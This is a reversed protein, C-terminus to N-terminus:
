MIGQLHSIDDVLKKIFKKGDYDFITLSANQPNYKFSEEKPADLLYPMLTRISGGHTVIVVTKNENNEIITHLSTILREEAEQWSEGNPPKFTYRENLTLPSLIKEVERWEKGSFEGWDREHLNEIEEFTLNLKTAILIASQLARKEKSSYVKDVHYQTLAKATTEIQKQGITSLPEEDNLRHLKGRTNIATEGHRIFILTTM